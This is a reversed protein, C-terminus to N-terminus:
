WSLTKMVRSWELWVLSPELAFFSTFSMWAAFVMLMGTLPTIPLRKPEKSTFLSVMTVGAMIAAFPFTYAFGYTLRHPNMLSVWTFLLAGIV